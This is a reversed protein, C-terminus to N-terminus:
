WFPLVDCIVNLLKKNRLGCLQNMKV